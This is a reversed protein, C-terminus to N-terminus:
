LSAHHQQDFLFQEIRIRKSKGHTMATTATWDAFAAGMESEAKGMAWIVVDGAAVPPAPGSDGASCRM